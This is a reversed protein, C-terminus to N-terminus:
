DEHKSKMNLEDGGYWELGTKIQGQKDAPMEGKEM